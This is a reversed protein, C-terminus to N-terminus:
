LVIVAVFAAGLSCGSIMKIKKSFPLVKWNLTAQERTKFLWDPFEAKINFYLQKSYHYFWYAAGIFLGWMIYFVIVQTTHRSTHFLHEVIEDLALELVEFLGIVLSELLWFATGPMILIAALASMIIAIKINTSLTM